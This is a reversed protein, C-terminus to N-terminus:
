GAFHPDISRLLVVPLQMKVADQQEYITYHFANPHPHFDSATIM